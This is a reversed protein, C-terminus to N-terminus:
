NNPDTPTVENYVKDGVTNTAWMKGNLSNYVFGVNPTGVPDGGTADGGIVLVDSFGNLSNTPIQTLYPGMTKGQFDTTETLATWDSGILTPPQDGHQVMYFEIQGRVTNLTSSLSGRKAEVNASSFKPMVIAALVGLIIVVILIEVLTFARRQQLGRMPIDEPLPARPLTQELNAACVCGRIDDARPMGRIM